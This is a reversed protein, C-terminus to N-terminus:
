TDQLMLCTLENRNKKLKQTLLNSQAHLMKYIFLDIQLLKLFCLKIMILSHM